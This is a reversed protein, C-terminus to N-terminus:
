DYKPGKGDAAHEDSQKLKGNMYWKGVATDVAHGEVYPLNKANQLLNM